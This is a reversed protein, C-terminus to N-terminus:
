EGKEPQSTIDTERCYRNNHRNGQLVPQREGIKCKCQVVHHLDHLTIYKQALPWYQHLPLVHATCNYSCRLWDMCKVSPTVIVDNGALRWCLALARGYKM